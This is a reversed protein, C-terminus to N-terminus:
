FASFKDCNICLWRTSILPIGDLIDNTIRLFILTYDYFSKHLTIYVLLSLMCVFVGRGGGFFIKLRLIKPLTRIQFTKLHGGGLFFIWTKSNKTSNSNSINQFTAGGWSVSLYVACVLSQWEVDLKTLRRMAVKWEGHRLVKVKLLRLDM